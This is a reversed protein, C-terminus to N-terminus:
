VATVAANCTGQPNLQNSGAADVLTPVADTSGPVAEGDVFMDIVLPKEMFLKVLVSESEDASFFQFRTRDPLTNTTMIEHEYGPSTLWRFRLGPMIM